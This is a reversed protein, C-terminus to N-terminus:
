RARRGARIDPVALLEDPVSGDDVPIGSPIAGRARPDRADMFMEDEFALKPKRVGRRQQGSFRGGDDEVLGLGCSTFYKEDVEVVRGADDTIALRQADLRGTASPIVEHVPYEKDYSLKCPLKRVENRYPSDPELYVKYLVKKQNVPRRQVGNGRQVPIPRNPNGYLDDVSTQARSAALAEHPHKHQGNVAVLQGPQAQPQQPMPIIMQQQEAMMEHPFQQPQPVPCPVYHTVQPQEEVIEQAVMQAAENFSFRKNRLMIGKGDECEKFRIEKRVLEVVQVDVVWIDRRAMEAMISAALNELPTEDFPRGVKVVKEERTETDYGGGSKRPHFTYKVEYGM